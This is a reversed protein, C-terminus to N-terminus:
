LDLRIAANIQHRFLLTYIFGNIIKWRLWRAKGDLRLLLRSPVFAKKAQVAGATPAIIATM